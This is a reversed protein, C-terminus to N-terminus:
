VYGAMSREYDHIISYRAERSPVKYLGPSGDPYFVPIVFDKAIRQQTIMEELISIGLEFGEIRQKKLDEPLDSNNIEMMVERSNEIRKEIERRWKECDVIDYPFIAM